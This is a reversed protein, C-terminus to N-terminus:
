DDDLYGNNDAEDCKEATIFESGLFEKREDSFIEILLKIKNQL